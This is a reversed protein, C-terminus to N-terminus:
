AGDPPTQGPQSQRRNEANRAGVDVQGRLVAGEAVVLRPSVISGDLSGTEGIDVRDQATISGTVAGLVVVSQAVIDARIDAEPGITLGHGRVEITGEVRGDITMEEASILDGKFIVSKGVWAVNRREATPRAALARAATSAHPIGADKVLPERDGM